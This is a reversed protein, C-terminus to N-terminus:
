CFIALFLPWSFSSELLIQQLPIKRYQMRVITSLSLALLCVIAIFM